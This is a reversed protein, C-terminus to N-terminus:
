ATLAVLAAYGTALMWIAPAGDENRSPLSWICVLSALAVVGAASWHWSGMSAARTAVLITAGFGLFVLMTVVGRGAVTALTRMGQGADLPQDRVECLVVYMSLMLAFVVTVATAGAPMPTSRLGNVVVMPVILMLAPWLVEAFMLRYRRSAATAGGTLAMVLVLALAVMVAASLRPVVLLVAIVATAAAAVWRTVSSVEPWYLDEDRSLAFRPSGGAAMSASDFSSAHVIVLLTHALLLLPGAAGLGSEVGDSSAIWLMAPPVTFLALFVRTSQVLALLRRM